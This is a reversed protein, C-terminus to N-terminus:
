SRGFRTFVGIMVILSALALIIGGPSLDRLV